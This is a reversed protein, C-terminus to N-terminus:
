SGLNKVAAGARELALLSDNFLEDLGFFGHIMGEYEAIDVAVDAAALAAAYLRGQVGIPDCEALIITAPPLGKLDALLPAVYPEVGQGPDSLYNDQHWQMEARFLMLGEYQLDFGIALDCTTVPYVLLQHAIRPGGEDRARIAAVAALNGGASDGAVVLRDGDADLQDAHELTWTLAAMADDVAAPYRAEPGRRYDVSVVVSDAALCLKRAIADYDDIDGLLWGGGHFYVIATRSRGIKPRYIRLRIPAGKNSLIVEAVEAVEPAITGRYFESLGARAEAIPLLHANPRGSAAASVLLQQAVPHLSLTEGGTRNTM